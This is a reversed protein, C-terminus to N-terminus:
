IIVRRDRARTLCLSRQVCIIEMLNIGDDDRRRIIAQNDRALFIFPRLPRSAVTLREKGNQM